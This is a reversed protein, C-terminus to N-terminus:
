HPWWGDHGVRLGCFGFWFDFLFFDDGDIWETCGHFIGHECLARDVIAILPNSRPNLRTRGPAPEELDTIDRSDDFPIGEVPKENYTSACPEGIVDALRGSTRLTKTRTQRRKM